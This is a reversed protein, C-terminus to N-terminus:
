SLFNTNSFNSWQSLCFNSSRFLLTTSVSTIRMTCKSLYKTKKIGKTLSLSFPPPHKIHLSINSRYISLTIFTNFSNNIRKRHFEMSYNLNSLFSIWWFVVFSIILLQEHLNTKLSFSLRQSFISNDLLSWIILLSHCMRHKILKEWLIMSVWSDFQLIENSFIKEFAIWGNFQDSFFCQFSFLLEENSLYRQTRTWFMRSFNQDFLFIEEVDNIIM